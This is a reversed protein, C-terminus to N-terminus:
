TSYDQLMTRGCKHHTFVKIIIIIIIIKITTKNIELVIFTLYHVLM